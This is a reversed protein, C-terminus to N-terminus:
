IYFGRATKLYVARRNRSCRALKDAPSEQLCCLSMIQKSSKPM